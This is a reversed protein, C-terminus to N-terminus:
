NNVSIIEWNLNDNDLNIWMSGHGLMVGKSLIHIDKIDELLKNRYVKTFVRDYYFSMVSQSRVWKQRKGIRVRTPYHLAALLTHRDNSRIAHEITSLFALCELARPGYREELAAKLGPASASPAQSMEEARLSQPASGLATVSLGIALIARLIIKM